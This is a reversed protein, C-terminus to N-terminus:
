QKKILYAMKVRKTKNFFFFECVFILLFFRVWLAFKLDFPQSLDHGPTRSDQHATFRQLGYSIPVLYHTHSDWDNYLYVTKANTPIEGKCVYKRKKTKRQKEEYEDYPTLTLENKMTQWEQTTVLTRDLEFM